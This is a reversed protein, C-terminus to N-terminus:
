FTEKALKEAYGIYTQPTLNLLINKDEKSLFDLSLIFEKIDEKTISRGRTLIKLRDYADSMGYKRLMTQIPEALVEYNDELDCKIKTENIQCKKLGKVTESLAQVSYGFVLGINRLGSSDSLDRQLRSKPLKNSLSVAIANSMEVNAESNEFQIPNVKHPMTSSGVEGKVVEQKFYSMSIYLWMDVNLDCVVNNFHRIGDLLHCIYDHSEIQTTYPNFRLKLFKEIFYQAKEEWNVKPFAVLLANYNGTAGNFKAKVGISLINKLSEELRYAYVKFEKGVTTPTAPQGHTHGLMPISSYREKLFNVEKILNTATKVWVELGKKIMLAYAVNNIDESTCGIHVLSKVKACNIKDLCECVYYEIAKVDHKTVEELEKIRKLSSRNFSLKKITKSINTKDESTLFTFDLENLELLYKLWNIEVNFREKIFAYESFCNSFLKKIDKYRGDLPCIASCVEKM